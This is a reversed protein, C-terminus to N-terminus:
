DGHGDYTPVYTAAPVGSSNYVTESLLGGVGGSSRPDWVYSRSMLGTFGDIEGILDLGDCAYQTCEDPSDNWNDADGNLSFVKRGTRRGQEDYAYRVDKWLDAHGVPTYTVDTLQDLGDFLYRWDGLQIQNGDGDYDIATGGPLATYQNLI